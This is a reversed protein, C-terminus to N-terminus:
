DALPLLSKGPRGEDYLAHIARQCEVESAPGEDSCQDAGQLGTGWRFGDRHAVHLSRYMSKERQPRFFVAYYRHAIEELDDTPVPDSRTQDEPEFIARDIVFRGDERLAPVELEDGIVMYLLTRGEWLRHIKRDIYALTLNCNSRCSLITLLFDLAFV